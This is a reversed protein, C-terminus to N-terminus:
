RTQIMKMTNYAEEMQRSNVELDAEEKNLTDFRNRASNQTARDVIIEDRLPPAMELQFPFSFQFDTFCDFRFVIACQDKRGRFTEHISNGDFYRKAM